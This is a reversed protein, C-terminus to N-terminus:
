SYHIDYEVYSITCPWTFSQLNTFLLKSQGRFNVPSWPLERLILESHDVLGAATNLISQLKTLQQSPLRYLLGNSSDLKFTSLLATRM